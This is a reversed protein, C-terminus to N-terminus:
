DEGSIVRAVVSLLGATAFFVLGVGAVVVAVFAVPIAIIARM